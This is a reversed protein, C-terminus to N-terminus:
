VKPQGHDLIFAIALRDLRYNLANLVGGMMAIGYHAGLAGARQPGDGPSQIQWVRHRPRRLADRAPLLASLVELYSYRRRATSHSRDQRISRASRALFSLPTWRPSIQPTGRWFRPADYTPAFTDDRPFTWRRM